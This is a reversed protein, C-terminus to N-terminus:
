QSPTEFVLGDMWIKNIYTHMGKVHSYLALFAVSNFAVLNFASMLSAGQWGVIIV